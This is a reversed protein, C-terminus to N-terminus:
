RRTKGWAGEAELCERLRNRVRYLMVGLNTATVDLIECIERTSLGEVERLLFAMRYRTTCTDLCKEIQKRVERDLLASDAPRPPQSWSGAVDFRSEIVDDVDDMRQERDLHRRREAIKRYLIGFLWTRVHSRGQFRPATEVFTTFTEQVVDDAQDPALGAGRAARRVQPLYTRIVAQIVQPNRARIGEAVGPGDLNTAM